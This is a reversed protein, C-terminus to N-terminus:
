NAKRRATGDFVTQDAYGLYGHRSCRVFAENTDGSDVGPGVLLYSSRARSFYEWKASPQRYRDQPCILFAPSGLQNSIELFSEPFKGGHSEAWTKGAATIIAIKRICKESESARRMGPTIAVILIVPVVVIAFLGIMLLRQKNM